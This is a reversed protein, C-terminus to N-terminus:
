RDCKDNPVLLSALNNYYAGLSGYLHCAHLAVCAFEDGEVVLSIGCGCAYLEDRLALIQCFSM